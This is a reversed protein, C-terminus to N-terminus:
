SIVARFPSRWFTCRAWVLSPIAHATFHTATLVIARAKPHSTRLDYIFEQASDYVADVDLVFLDPKQAVARQQAEAVSRTVVSETGPLAEAV